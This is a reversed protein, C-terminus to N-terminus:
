LSLNTEEVRCSDRIEFITRYHKSKTAKAVGRLPFRGGPGSEREPSDSIEAAMGM